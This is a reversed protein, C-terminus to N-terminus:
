PFAGTQDSFNKNPLADEIDVLRIFIEKRKAKTSNNGMDGVPTENKNVKVKTTWLGAKTKRGHGKTLEDLEPFHRQVVKVM